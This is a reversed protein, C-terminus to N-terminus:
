TLVAEKRTTRREWWAFAESPLCLNAATVVACAAALTGGLIMAATPAGAALLVGVVFLSVSALKFAHRRRIPNPPLPPAGVLHRAAHNWLHDFPHRASVGAVVGIVALTLVVGPSELVLATTVLGLSLGTSFRVGVALRHCNADSIRHGQTRLNSRMWAGVSM